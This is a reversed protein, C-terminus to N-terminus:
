FALSWTASLAGKRDLQYGYVDDQVPQLWEVGLRNGQLSGSPVVASLGFGVDWYKGGYSAPLDMPGSLSHPGNFQGRIDGQWTYVGRVTASLWHTLNYGGWASTQFVDGFAFGSENHSEMRKVGNLQGGWFWENQQGSYTLSPRFDWTGSGLQMGYHILDGGDIKQKVSGTPASVGLSMHWRHGPLEALKFLAYLGTDGVGGTSHQPPGGGGHHHGSDAVGGALSRLTMDMDMFQPMLMLNLWDTPAYMLDLMHMHMSHEAPTLGCGRSGCGHAVIAADGAEESGHLMAGDQFSNMYRYGVMVNGAQEMLHDFMVGAPAQGGGGHHHHHHHGGSGSFASDLDVRLAANVLWSDFDAYKGSGGGGLKLGSEHTYYEAGAEFHMGKAFQKSITLGGSLAGFGALRHDSSYHQPFRVLSMDNNLLINLYDDFSLNRDIVFYPQFFDAASQSYYRVKPTVMWGHGLPQGWAAEFTHANIGWNDHAFRYDLHLAADAPAIHQVYRASWTFQDRQNPRNDYRSFALSQLLGTDPDPSLLEPAYLPAFFLSEKYPNSLFGSGHSYSFGAALVADKNLVQTLNLNVTEDHRLERLRGDEPSGNGVVRHAFRQAHVRSDSHSVGWSLTTLKQNFDWRGGLNVFSSDYDDEVSVGGGANLAAEDWEYGLSFDGQKRTEASASAMVQVTEGTIIQNGTATDLYAGRRQKPDFSAFANNVSWFPSAGAVSDIRVLASAPATSIPTAGSWTDQTYNATLKLRDTLRTSGSAQLSDVQISNGTDRFRSAAEGGEQYRGYQFSFEEGDAAQASAPLLGPLALAAATLACLTAGTTPKTVAM